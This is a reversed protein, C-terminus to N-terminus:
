NIRNKFRNKIDSFLKWHSHCITGQEKGGLNNFSWILWSLGKANKGHGSIKLTKLSLVLPLVLEFRMFFLSKVMLHYLLSIMKYHRWHDKLSYAERQKDCWKIGRTVKEFLDLWIQLWLVRTFSDNMLVNIAEM